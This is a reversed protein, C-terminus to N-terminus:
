KDFIICHGFLLRQQKTLLLLRNELSNRLRVIISFGLWRCWSISERITFNCLQFYFIVLFVVKIGVLSM